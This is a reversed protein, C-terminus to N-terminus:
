HKFSAFSSSPSFSSFSSFSVFSSFSSFDAGQREVSEHRGELRFSIAAPIPQIKKFLMNYVQSSSQSRFMSIERVQIMMLTPPLPLNTECKIKKDRRICPVAGGTILQNVYLGMLVITVFLM